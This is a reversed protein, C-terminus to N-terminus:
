KSRRKLIITFVTFIIGTVVSVVVWKVWNKQAVQTFTLKAQAEDQKTTQRENYWDGIAWGALATGIWRLGLWIAEGM